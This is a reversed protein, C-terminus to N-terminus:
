SLPPTVVTCRLHVIQCLGLNRRMFAGFRPSVVVIDINRSSACGVGAAGGRLYLPHGAPGPAHAVRRRHGGHLACVSRRGEPVMGSSREGVRLREGLKPSSKVVTCRLHVIQCLGLNRRMFAGFRPSVVVIDINRSSACGVGAPRCRAYQNHRESSCDTFGDDDVGHKSGHRCRFM